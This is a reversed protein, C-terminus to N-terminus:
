SQDAVAVAPLNLDLVPVLVLLALAPLRPLLAAALVPQLCTSAAAAGRSHVAVATLVPLAAPLLARCRRASM